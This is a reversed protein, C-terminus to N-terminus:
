GAPDVPPDSMLSDVSAEGTQYRRVMEAQLEDIRAHFGRRRESIRRELDALSEALVALEPDELDDVRALAAGDLLADLEVQFDPDVTTPELAPLRRGPVAAGSRPGEALVDPLEALLHALDPRRGDRARLEVERRVIDLPGQVLRRQYSLGTEFAVCRDRWARLEPLPRAALGEVPALLDDSSTTM